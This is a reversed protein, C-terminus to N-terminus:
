WRLKSWDIPKPDTVDFLRKIEQEDAHRKISIVTGDGLAVITGLPNESNKIIHAAVHISVDKPAAWPIKSEPYMILMGVDSNSRKRSGFDALRHTKSSHILTNEDVVAVINTFNSDETRSDCTKFCDLSQLSLLVNRGEDWPITKDFEMLEHDLLSPIVVRWSVTRRGNENTWYAPPLRNMTMDYNQLAIAVKLMQYSDAAHRAAHRTENAFYVMVGITISGIVVVPGLILLRLGVRRKPKQTTIRAEQRASISSTMSARRVKAQKWVAAVIWLYLIGLIMGFIKLHLAFALAAIAAFAFAMRDVKISLLVTTALAAGLVIGGTMRFFQLVANSPEISITLEYIALGALAMGMTLFIALLRLM